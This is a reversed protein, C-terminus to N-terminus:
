AVRREIKDLEHAIQRKRQRLDFDSQLALFFGESMGYYRCLRLDLDATVPRAGRILENLDSAPVRILSALTDPTMESPRLFEELLIEGPHVDPLLDAETSTTGHSSGM